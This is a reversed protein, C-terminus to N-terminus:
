HEGPLFEHYFPSGRVSRGDYMVDIVYTGAHHATFSVVAVHRETVHREVFTQGHLLEGMSLEVKLRSADCM